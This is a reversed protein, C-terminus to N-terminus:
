VCRYGRVACVVALGVGTNGGSAEVVTAGPTLLGRKEADDIMAVAARDKVSGGPGFFELKAVIEACGDPVVRHLSDIPTHGITRLVNDHIMREALKAWSLRLRTAMARLDRACM